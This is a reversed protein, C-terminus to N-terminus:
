DIIVKIDKLSNILYIPMSIIILKDISMLARILMIHFKQTSNCESPRKQALNSYEIKELYKIALKQATKISM